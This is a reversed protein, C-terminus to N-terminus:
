LRLVSSLKRKVLRLFDWTMALAAEGVRKAFWKSPGLDGREFTLHNDARVQGSISKLMWRLAGRVGIERGHLASMFGIVDGYLWVFRKSVARDPLANSKVLPQNLAMAMLPTVLDLGLAHPFAYNGGIRPNLELFSIQGRAEDILYQACGVGSYELNEILRQTPVDLGSVSPVSVGEVAYGSGDPRDTREIRVDLSDVVVGKDAVFYRNYRSGRVRAQVLLSDHWSPWEKFVFHLHQRSNIFYAKVDYNRGDNPRAVCPYGVQEGAEVLAEMSDAIAFAAQPVDLEAALVAMKGKDCCLEVTERSAAALPIPLQEVMKVLKLLVIESVPMIMSVDPREALLEDLAALFVKENKFMSPHDWVREVYKCRAIVGDRAGGAIVRHGAKGLQRAIALSLRYNGLLLVTQKAVSFETTIIPVM